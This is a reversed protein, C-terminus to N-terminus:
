CRGPRCRWRLRTPTRRCRGARRRGRGGATTSGGSGRWGRSANARVDRQSQAGLQDHKAEGHEPMASRQIAMAASTPVLRSTMALASRSSRCDDLQPAASRGHAVSPPRDAEDSLGALELLPKGPPEGERITCSLKSTVSDGWRFRPVSGAGAAPMPGASRALSRGPSRSARSARTM